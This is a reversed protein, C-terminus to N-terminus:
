LFKETLNKSQYLEESDIKPQCDRIYKAYDDEGLEESCRAFWSYEWSKLKKADFALQFKDYTDKIIRSRINVAVLGVFYNYFLIYANKVFFIIFTILLIQDFTFISFAERIYNFFENNTENNSQNSKFFFSDLPILIAISLIEFISNLFMMLLSFFLIIKERFNLIKLIKRIIKLEM